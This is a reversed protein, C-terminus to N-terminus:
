KITKDKYKVFVAINELLFMKLPSTIPLYEILNCIQKLVKQVKRIDLLLSNNNRFLEIFLIAANSKKNWKLHAFFLKFYEELIEQNLQNNYCFLSL